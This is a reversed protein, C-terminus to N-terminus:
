PYPEYVLRDVNMKELDKESSYFKGPFELFVTNGRVLLKEKILPHALEFAAVRCERACTVGRPAEGPKVDPMGLPCARASTLDLYPYYLTLRFDDKAFGYRKGDSFNVEPLAGITSLELRTIGLGRWFALAEGNHVKLPKGTNDFVNDRLLRGANLRFPLRRRRALEVAGFDNVTIELADSAAGRPPRPLCAFIGDLLRVGKESLPPTLLCVKCGQRLLAAVEACVGKDLLNECFEAGIYFRDFDELAADLAGAKRLDALTRTGLRLGKEVPM